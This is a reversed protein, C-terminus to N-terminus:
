KTYLEIFGMKVAEFDSDPLRGMRKYLRYVSMVRIQALAAYSKKDQFEFSVYWSGDHLQTTLPIALFGLRSFKKYIIVPRSFNRNKGNIEIGVNKGVAAWWIEGENITPTMRQIHQRMKVRIWQQFLIIEERVNM